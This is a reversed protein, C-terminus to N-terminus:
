APAINTADPTESRLLRTFTATAAGAGYICTSIMAAGSAIGFVKGTALSVLLVAPVAMIVRASCTPQIRWRVSQINNGLEETLVNVRIGTFLGGTIHLDARDFDSGRIVRVANQKLRSEIQQLWETPRKGRQPGLTITRPRPFTFGRLGRSRWPTLGHGFRGVFRALPQLRYLAAILMRSALTDNTDTLVASRAHLLAQCFSFVATGLLLWRWTWGFPCLCILLLQLLYWESTMPLTTFFDPVAQLRNQYPAECWVGHYIRSPRFSRATLIGYVEGAWSLRGLPSYKEPWKRELDAEARGYNLQQRWFSALTNRRHHWVMAAPAFAIVGGAQQLQWCLDVDDGAIKFQPDFGNIRLLAEKYFAMNCGPIHEAVTDSLLVHSPGGPVKSVCQSVRDAQTQPHGPTGARSQPAINPGGAGVINKDKQMADVLCTLWDPDPYADDDIYAIIQGSAAHLGTNRAASLGLNNQEILHVPFSAAIKGTADTSGDNVVIIEFNTYNLQLCHWLTQAITKQGNFSCIVVSVRPSVKLQIPPQRYAAAVADLSIRPRRDADVLGFKWQHIDQGHHFWEDTWSFLFSGAAGASFAARIQGALRHAQGAEGHSAADAGLESIMLPRDGTLNHLRTLYREFERPDDLYVNFSVFDLFPLNLYETSPYNAYTILAAPDLKRAIKCLEHLHKEIRRPGYWRAVRAPIENGIVLGLVAPHDACQLMAHEVLRQSEYQLEAHEFFAVHQTWPVGVLVRLQHAAALDFFWRPPVSYTRISNIGSRAMCTFDQQVIQANRYFCNDLLPNFPGYTVGRAFFNEQGATLFKGATELRPLNGSSPPDPLRIPSLASAPQSDM